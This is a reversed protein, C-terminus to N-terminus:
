PIKRRSSIEGDPYEIKSDNERCIVRRRKNRKDVKWVRACLGYMVGGSCTLFELTMYELTMPAAFAASRLMMKLM